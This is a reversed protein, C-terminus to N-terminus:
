QALHIVQDLGLIFAIEAEFFNHSHLGIHAYKEITQNVEIFEDRILRPVKEVELM